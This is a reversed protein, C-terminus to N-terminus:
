RRGTRNLWRGYDVDDHFIHESHLETLLSLSDQSLVAGGRVSRTVIQRIREMMRQHHLCHRALGPYRTALMMGEELAFHTLTFNALKRLMPGTLSRDEGRDAASKLEAITESMERHDSDLLRVGVYLEGNGNAPEM